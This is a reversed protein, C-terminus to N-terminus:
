PGVAGAPPPAAPPAAAAPAQPSASYEWGQKMIMLTAQVVGNANRGGVVNLEQVYRHSGLVSEVVVGVLEPIAAVVTTPATAAIAQTGAQTAIFDDLFRFEEDMRMEAGFDSYLLWVAEEHESSLDKIKLGLDKAETRNIPHGHFYLKSTLSDAIDQILSHETKEDMHLALLKKAMMRSQAWFRKVNGLALPHLQETLTRFAQVLDSEGRIGVDEKILQIYAYVDEVSIGLQLQPNQPDRPNFPNAVTPDTPGLVGMPHMFIGDAGLSILTAASYARNPILVNFEEAFERILTVLRWPVVGEGGNSHLLLEIRPQKKGNPALHRLHEYVRPIADAAIQFNTNPRTNTIYCIIKSDRTQELNRLLQLRQAQPM